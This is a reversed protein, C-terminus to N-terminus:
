PFIIRNITHIIGNTATLDCNMVRAGRGLPEREFHIHGKHDRHVTLIVDWALTGVLQQRTFPWPTPTRVSSCCMIGPILHASMVREAWTKDEMLKEIQTEELRGLADDNPALFTFGNVGNSDSLEKELKTGKLIQTLMSFSPTSALTEFLNGKPPVLVKDIVHIVGNCASKDTSVINACQVTARNWGIGFMDSSSLMIRITQNPLKTALVQNTEMDCSNIMPTVQHYVLIDTVKQGEEETLVEGGAELDLKEEDAWKRMAEDTPVFLTVNELDHTMGAWELYTGFMTLNSDQLAQNVQRASVPFLISDILHMVGNTAVIDMDHVMTKEVQESSGKLTLKWQGAEGELWELRLNEGQRSMAFAIYEPIQPVAASCLTGSVVHHDLISMTCSKGRYLDDSQEMTLKDFADNTPAFLTLAENPSELAKMLKEAAGRVAHAALLARFKSLRPHSAIHEALTRQVPVLVRDVMHVVGNTARRSGLNKRMEEDNTHEEKNGVCACNATVIKGGMLSHQMRGRADRENINSAPYVNIRITSNNNDSYLVQEDHLDEVGIFGSTMHSLVIDKMSSTGDDAREEYLGSDIQRRRRAAAPPVYFEVQNASEAEDAYERIAMNSPVFVTMNMESVKEELGTSRVLEAFDSGGMESITELVSVMRAEVCGPKSQAREYGHCCHYKETYTKRIGNKRIKRTCVYQLETQECVSFLQFSAQGTEERASSTVSVGTGEKSMVIMSDPRGTNDKRTPVEDDVEKKEVCVNPGKWWPVFPRLPRGLGTGFIDVFGTPFSPQFMQPSFDVWSTGQNGGLPGSIADPLVEAEAESEEVEDSSDALDGMSKWSSVWSGHPALPISPMPSREHSLWNPGPFFPWEGNVSSPVVVVVAVALALACVLGAKM